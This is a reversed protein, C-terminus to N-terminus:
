EYDEIVNLLTSLIEYERVFKTKDMIMMFNKLNEKVKKTTSEKDFSTAYSISLFSVAVYNCLEIVAPSINEKRYRIARKFVFAEAVKERLSNNSTSTIKHNFIYVDHDNLHFYSGKQHKNYTMTRPHVNLYEAVDEKKFWLLAINTKKNITVYQMIFTNTECVYM